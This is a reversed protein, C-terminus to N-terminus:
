LTIVANMPHRIEDLSSPIYYRCADSAKEGPLDVTTAYRSRMVPGHPGRAQWLDEGDARGTRRPVLIRQPLVATGPPKDRRLGRTRIGYADGAHTWLTTAHCAQGALLLVPNFEWHIWWHPRPWATLGRTRLWFLAPEVGTTGEMAKRIHRFQCVGATSTRLEGPEVGPTRVLHRLRRM